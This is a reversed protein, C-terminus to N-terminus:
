ATEMNTKTGIFRRCGEYMLHWTNSYFDLQPPRWITKSLAINIENRIAAHGALHGGIALHDPALTVMVSRVSSAIPTSVFKSVQLTRETSNWWEGYRQELRFGATFLDLCDSAGCECIETGTIGCATHGFEGENKRRERRPHNRDVFAGGARTGFGYYALTGDGDVGLAQAQVDNLVFVSSKTYKEIATTLNISNISKLFSVEVYGEGDIVGPCAICVIQNSSGIIEACIELLDNTSEPTQLWGSPEHPNSGFRVKTGGIDIALM